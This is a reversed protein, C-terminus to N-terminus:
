IIVSKINGLSIIKKHVEYETKISSSLRVSLWQCLTSPVSVLLRVNAREV